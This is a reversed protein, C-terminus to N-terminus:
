FRIFLVKRRRACGGRGMTYGRADEAYFGRRGRRAFFTRLTCFFTGLLCDELHFGQAEARLRRTGDHIGKRGGRLFRQTRLTCFIDQAHLFHGRRAFFTRLTCFVGWALLGGFSVRAGGCAVEADWRTDGQRRRTFVEADEAHLFHGSRAFFRGLRAIRWIFGKRRRACGGRGMTYGRADEAYFGRRGRRAFFTRLTCFIDEANLFHGSRVFFRGLCAIRWIFGKRRRACGRRGMMYGRAEEAYFGRRGRRAFFTRLTCFFAGLLCDELHFGQAEARLRQTGDHIGKGEGRLFRQTRQTCFIDQAHLFHGSRVFFRGLRAIRWIFGKRRRACGGRGMTYGRADEAYFGRRGRRAFFTRQTCFIDQAHLFHGSRVFFTRLTCLFTRIVCGGRAVRFGWEGWFGM